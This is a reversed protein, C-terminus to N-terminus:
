CIGPHWVQPIRTRILQGHRFGVLGQLTVTSDVANIDHNSRATLVCRDSTRRGVSM